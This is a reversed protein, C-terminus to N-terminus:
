FVPLLQLLAASSLAEVFRWRLTCHAAAAPVLWSVSSIAHARFGRMAGAGAEGRRGGEGVVEGGPGAARSSM